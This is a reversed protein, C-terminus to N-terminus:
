SKEKNLRKNLAPRSIGLLGAAISQNGDARKMAEDILLQVTEEITPLRDPFVLGASFAEPLSHEDSDSIIRRFSEMSLVKGQHRSVADYVMAELERINGPFHYTSLLTLLEPPTTPIPKGLEQAAKALLHPVLLELDEKRERLPPINVLHTNLRYYLDKRFRGQEQLRRLDQNTALVIRTRTKKVRDSGLPLYEGEQLLRLLKVQSTLCLDGIEDLFLTGGEAEEIMGSRNQDAGTFAGKVHGFLTDSFVNDDLGAVNVAVWPGQPTALTHVIKAVLEKGVGSEGVILVPQHSVALAELYQFVAKMKVSQTVLESFADTNKLEDNLLNDKLTRNEREMEVLRLIRKVGGVLRDEEVTKVYYDAAGAKICRVSVEVQNIGTLVIVPVGPHQEVIQGLLDEGSLYPMTLDLLILSVKQEALLPLVERSDQCQLINNIGGSRELVLSLSRLWPREDDVLLVPNVPYLSKAM